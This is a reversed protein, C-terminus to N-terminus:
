SWHHSSAASCLAVYCRRQHQDKPHFAAAVASASSCTPLSCFSTLALHNFCLTHATLLLKYSCPPPLVIHSRRLASQPFPVPFQYIHVSSWSLILTWVSRAAKKIEISPSKPVSGSAGGVGWFGRGTSGGLCFPYWDAGKQFRCGDAYEDLCSVSTNCLKPAFVPTRVGMCVHGVLSGFQSACSWM